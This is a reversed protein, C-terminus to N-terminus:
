FIQMFDIWVLVDLGIFFIDTQTRYIITFSLFLYYIICIVCKFKSKGALIGPQAFFSATRDESKTNMILVENGFQNNDNGSTKDTASGQRTTQDPDLDIENEDRNPSLGSHKKGTQKTDGVLNRSCFFGILNSYKLRCLIKFSYM